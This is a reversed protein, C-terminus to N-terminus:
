RDDGRWQNDDGTRTYKYGTKICYLPFVIGSVFFFFELKELNKIHANIAVKTTKISTDKEVDDCM